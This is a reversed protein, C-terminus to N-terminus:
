ECGPHGPPPRDPGGGLHKALKPPIPEAAIDSFVDRLKRGLKRRDM